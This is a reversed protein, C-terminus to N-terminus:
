RGVGVCESCVAYGDAARDNPEGCRRCDAEGALQPVESRALEVARERFEDLTQQHDDMLDPM